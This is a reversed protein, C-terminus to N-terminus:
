CGFLEAHLETLCKKNEKQHLHLNRHSFVLHQLSGRPRVHFLGEEELNTRLNFSCFGPVIDTSKTPRTSDYLFNLEYRKATRCVVLQTCVVTENPLTLFVTENQVLKVKARQRCWEKQGQETNYNGSPKTSLCPLYLEILSHM